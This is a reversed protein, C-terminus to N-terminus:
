KEAVILFHTRLPPFIYAISRALFNRNWHHNFTKIKLVNFGERGVLYSFQYPHWHFIHPLYKRDNDLDEKMFIRKNDAMINQLGTMNPTTIILRGKERLIRKCERIFFIPQELHEIVDAAIISDYSGSKIRYPPKNLDCKITPNGEIDLSDIKFKLFSEIFKHTPGESSGIDLVKGKAFKSVLAAKNKELNM